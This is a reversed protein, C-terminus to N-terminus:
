STGETALTVRPEADREDRRVAHITIIEFHPRREESCTVECLEVQFGQQTLLDSLAKCDFGTNRHDYRRAEEAHPHTGLTSAVLSGGPTIVRACEELVAAPRESYTLANLLMVHDFRQEAFPLAHMEGRVFRVNSLRELRRAAATIVRHSSDLCTIDRARSAVLESLAGDGSAIDLVRGLRTLGLLGRASSEWTRGPSYHRHMQGAVSDAWGGGSRSSVVSEVRVRDEDLLPDSTSVRLSEWLQRTRSDFGARQAAYFCSTGERRDRVLQAERLKGLHASVRSQSLGTIQTLEAVTLEEEELLALLRVRNPESLLRCLDTSRKLNLPGAM